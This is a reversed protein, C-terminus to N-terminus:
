AAREEKMEKMEAAAARIRDRTAEQANNSRRTTLHGQRKRQNVLLALGQWFVEFRVKRV